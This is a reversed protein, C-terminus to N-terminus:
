EQSIDPEGILARVRAVSEAVRAATDGLIMVHGMKRRPEVRQKGYVHLKVGPVEHLRRVDLTEVHKGLLNVMACPTLLRPEPVDLGAVVRVLVEFQSISCADLSFHGSNHPRPALENVLVREDKTVFMEVCLVGVVNLGEIIKRALALAETRAVGSIEAPVVTCHLIHDRHENLAVPFEQVRGSDERSAIVSVECALDLFEEVVVEEPASAYSRVYAEVDGSSRLLTQGKGDYGANATKVVAPLGVSAIGERLGDATLASAFGAVPIGLRQLAEKEQVRHQSIRLIEHGPRVRKLRELGEVIDTSIHEFEYTVVDASTALRRAAVEDSFPAVITEDALRSAPCTRDPDWVISRYGMRQAERVTMMGLQGGGIIGLVSPPLLPQSM